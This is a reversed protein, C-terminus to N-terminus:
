GTWGQLRALVQRVVQLSEEPPPPDPMQNGLAASWERQSPLRALDFSHRQVPRSAEAAIQLSQRTIAGAKALGYLDCLDRAAGRDAWANLKMAAAGELTPCNLQVSPPLDAYRLRVELDDSPYVAYSSDREVLQIRVAVEEARSIGVTTAGTRNWTLELGPYERRVAGPLAHTFRERADGTSHVLLDIDESVRWDPLHTRCLATGGFFTAEPLVAPLADLITSVLHDRRIQAEPVGLRDAWRRLEAGSLM